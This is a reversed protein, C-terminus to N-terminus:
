KQRRTGSVSKPGARRKADGPRIERDQSVVSLVAGVIDEERPLVTNAAPGLPIYTDVGVVRRTVVEGGCREQLVALIAESVGGSRRGEDVVVTRRTASAQEVVFDENLPNLWRLDVVRANLGHAERLTRAARLSMYVGNGFTIITADGASDEYVFGEGVAIAETPPPYRFCWGGDGPQHLDKTMYLAIPELFAVVRGDVKALAMCTRMMKVADDGRSPVAIVLGPIDRMAAFSNDNHFHGGFGKQYALSNIRVVMPNRYQGNSFFQCSCAEGRLQDIANHVYALYQIEPVPLLGMHGAGIALGLITTEDLLTNFVRAPGFKALLGTTVHYVGGKAAVDEGFVLMEPYKALLDHLGRNINVAMHRAPGSEPLSKEDGWAALRADRTAPRAAEAGVANAHYPALPSVVEAATQLKPPDGLKAAADKVRTRVREYLDLVEQPSLYGAAVLLRAAALLPDRAEWAEIEATTRYETEVDSGAHGLLRVTRMHVFAPSRRSRVYEVAQRTVAYTDPLDLGNCALYEIGRRNSMSAAVWGPPTRVSIGIENDECVFLIPVPIKQHACWGASNLAGQVVSHNLSADGFTCVIIADQPLAAAIPAAQPNTRAVRHARALAIAAGVAKPPHSGITSTQPLIWLPVSGWVKHRGGAIPDQISAMMGLLTDRVPDQDPLQKARQILFAGSRYHLFAPDNYRTLAGVVANGEHGSSGITYYGKDVKRLERALIDLHRSTVQSEFLEVLLSGTLDSDGRLAADLPRRFARAGSAALERCLSIFNRDIIEARNVM